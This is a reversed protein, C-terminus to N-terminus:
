NISYKKSIFSVTNSLHQAPVSPQESETLFRKHIVQVFRTRFIESGTKWGRRSTAMPVPPDRIVNFVSDPDSNDQAKCKKPTIASFFRKVEPAFGIYNNRM